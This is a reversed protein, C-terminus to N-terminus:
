SPRLNLPDSPTPPPIYRVEHGHIGVIRAPIHPPSDPLIVETGPPPLQLLTGAHYADGPSLVIINGTLTNWDGETALQLPHTDRSDIFYWQATTDDYKICVTHRYGAATDHYNLLFGDCGAPLLAKIYASSSGGPINYAVTHLCVPVDAHTYLWRDLIVPWFWGEPKYYQRLGHHRLAHMDTYSVLQPGTLIRRGFLANLSHVYCYAREQAEM